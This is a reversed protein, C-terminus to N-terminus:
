AVKKAKLLKHVLGLVIIAQGGVHAKGLLAALARVDEPTLALAIGSVVTIVGGAITKGSRLLDGIWTM